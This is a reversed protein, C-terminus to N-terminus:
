PYYDNKNYYSFSKNYYDNIIYKLTNPENWTTYSCFHFSCLKVGFLIPTQSINKQLFEIINNNFKM